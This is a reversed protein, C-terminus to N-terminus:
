PVPALRDVVFDVITRVQLRRTVEALQEDTLDGGLAEGDEPLFRALESLLEKVEGDEVAIAFQDKLGLVLELLDISDADLDDVLFTDETIEESNVEFVRAMQGALTTLVETREM